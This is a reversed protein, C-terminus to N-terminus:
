NRRENKREAIQKIMHKINILAVDMAMTEPVSFKLSETLTTAKEIFNEFTLKERLLDNQYLLADYDFREVYKGKSNCIMEEGKKTDWFKM